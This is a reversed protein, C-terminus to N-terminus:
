APGFCTTSDGTTPAITCSPAMGFSRTTQRASTSTVPRPASRSSPDAPPTRTRKRVSTSPTRHTPSRARTPRWCSAENDGGAAWNTLASIGEPSDITFTYASGLVTNTVDIQVTGLLAAIGSSAASNGIGPGGTWGATDFQRYRWCPEGATATDERNTGQVWDKNANDLLLLRLEFNGNTQILKAVRDTVLTLTASTISIEAGLGSLDFRLLSRYPQNAANLGVALQPYVGWNHRSWGVTDNLLLNDDAAGFLAEAAGAKGALGAGLLLAGLIFRETMRTRKM